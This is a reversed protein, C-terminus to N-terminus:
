AAVPSRVCRARVSGHGTGELFDDPAILKREASQDAIEGTMTRHSPIRKPVTLLQRRVCRSNASSFRASRCCSATHFPRSGRGRSVCISRIKQTRNDLTHVLQRCVSCTTRGSVTIPQCRCPNRRYQAHFLRRRHPRGAIALSRRSRIRCILRAFGSHLAGLIWPSSNFSPRVTECAVTDFYMTRGRLGGDCAHRVNKFFWAGSRIASSKKVTGVAVKRTRNTSTTSVWLRRRSTCKLTVACGVAAHVARWSSSAHASSSPGRYRIRSRSLDIAVAIFTDADWQLLRRVEVPDRSSATRRDRRRPGPM